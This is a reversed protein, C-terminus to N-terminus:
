IRDLDLKARTNKPLTNMENIRNTKITQKNLQIEKLREAVVKLYNNLNLQTSLRNSTVSGLHKDCFPHLVTTAPRLQVQVVVLYAANHLCLLSGKCLIVLLSKSKM